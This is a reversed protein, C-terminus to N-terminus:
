EPNQKISDSNSNTDETIEINTDETNQLSENSDAM